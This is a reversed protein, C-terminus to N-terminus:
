VYEFEYGLSKLKKIEKESVDYVNGEIYNSNNDNSFENFIPGGEAHKWKRANRAFTVMKKHAPNGDNYLEAETKGTRKKLDTLRGRHSPKIYIGGDKFSNFQGGYAAYNNMINSAQDAQLNTAAVQLNAAQQKLALSRQEALQKQKERAEEDRKNAATGSRIIGYMGGLVGGLVTGVGPIVSGLAAGAAAGSLIGKGASKLDDGYTNQKLDAVNLENVTTANNFQSMLDQASGANFTTNQMSKLTNEYSTTGKLAGLEAAAQETGLIGSASGSIAGLIDATSAESNTSQSNNLLMADTAVERPTPLGEPRDIHGALDFLNKDLPRKGRPIPKKKKKTM